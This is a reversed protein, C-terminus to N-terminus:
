PKRERPPLIPPAQGNRELTGNWVVDSDASSRRGSGSGGASGAPTGAAPGSRRPTSGDGPAVLRYRVTHGERRKVAAKTAVLADLAKWVASRSAKSRALIEQLSREEAGLAARVVEITTGKATRAAKPSRPADPRQAAKRAKRDSCAVCECDPVFPDTAIEPGNVIATVRVTPEGAMTSAFRRLTAATALLEKAYTELEIAAADCALATM